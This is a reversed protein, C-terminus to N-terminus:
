KGLARWLAVFLSVLSVAFAIVALTWPDRRM